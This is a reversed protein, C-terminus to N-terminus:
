RGGSRRGNRYYTHKHPNSKNAEGHTTFHTDSRRRGKADFTNRQPYNGTADMRLQTHARGRAEGDIKINGAKSKTVKLSQGAEDVPVYVSKSANVEAKISSRAPSMGGVFISGAMVLREPDTWQSLAESFSASFGNGITPNQRYDIANQRSWQTTYGGLYSDMKDVSEFGLIDAKINENWSQSDYTSKGGSQYGANYERFDAVKNDPVIIEDDSGDKTNLLVLGDSRKYKTDVGDQEMGTPDTFMIPNNTVYQYPTMTQEALPDVSVFISIRPDYYRAGYYYMQTADDLEKGNFKFKNDYGVASPVNASQNHEVMMEGFPLTEYYHSPRGFNDTLYTSSGLHDTHYWWIPKRKDEDYPGDRDPLTNNGDDDVGPLNLDPFPYPTEPRVIEKTSCIFNAQVYALVACANNPEFTLHKRIYNLAQKYCDLETGFDYCGCDTMVEECGEMWV